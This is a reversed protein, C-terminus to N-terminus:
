GGLAITIAVLVVGVLVMALGTVWRNMRAERGFFFGCLFLLAIAIANSIRLARMADEKMFVFPLVVPFTSLFVWLFSAGAALWDAKALRPHAAPDPMAKIRQSVTDLAAPTMLSALLPSLSGTIASRASEANAAAHVALLTGIGKARESLRAMLYFIADILGWALNCGLSGILMTKIESQGAEAASLSGTFTLVMILGFLAEAIRDIPDLAGWSSREAQTETM